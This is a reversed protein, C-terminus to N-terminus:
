NLTADLIDQYYQLGGECPFISNAFKHQCALRHMQVGGFYLKHARLFNRLMNEWTHICWGVTCTQLTLNTPQFHKLM